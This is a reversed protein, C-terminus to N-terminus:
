LSRQEGSHETSAERVVNSSDHKIVVEDIMGLAGEVKNSTDPANPHNYNRSKGQNNLTFFSAKLSNTLDTGRVSLAYALTDEANDLLIEVYQKRMEAALERFEPDSNVYKYVTHRDVGFDRCVLNMRGLHNKISAALSARPPDFKIGTPM